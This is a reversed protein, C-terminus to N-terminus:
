SPVGYDVQDTAYNDEWVDNTGATYGDSPTIDSAQNAFSNHNVVNAGGGGSFDINTTAEDMINSLFWSTTFPMDIHTTCDLFRNGKVVWWSPNAQSTSTNIIGSALTQFFCDEVRVFGSGGVDEIGITSTTDAANFRCGVIQAHGGELPDASYIEIGAIGAAPIFLLNEVVWGQSQLRLLPQDATASAPSRWAAGNGALVVGSATTHRVGGNFLGVIRVGYVDAPTELQERIDGCVYITSNSSSGAKLDQLRELEEFAKGMTAFAKNPLAGSYGDNGNVTDVYFSPGFGDGVFGLGPGNITQVALSTGFGTM